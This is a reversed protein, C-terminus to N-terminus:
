FQSEEPAPVAAPVSHSHEAHEAFTGDPNRRAIQLTTGTVDRHGSIEFRGEPIEGSINDLSIFGNEAKLHIQYSVQM